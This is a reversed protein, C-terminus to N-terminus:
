NAAVKVYLNFLLVTLVGVAAIRYFLGRNVKQEAHPVFRAVLPLYVAVIGLLLYTDIRLNRTSTFMGVISGVVIAILYPRMRRLEPEAINDLHPKLKYPLWAALFFVGAFLSGGIIGMEVYAQVFSNHALLGSEEGFEGVGIGYIPSSKFDVLADRWLDVREKGTGSTADIDTSRGAFGILLVPLLVAAAIIRKRVSLRTMVLAGIGAVMGVFGGRSYTLHMAYGLISLPIAWLYRWLGFKKDDFCYICLMVGVLIVRALDNPNNFMGISTLRTMFIQQGTVPDNYDQGEVYPAAGVHAYGYYQLLGLSCLIVIFVTMCILFQRFRRTSDIAAVLLLYYSIIQVFGVAVVKADSTLGNAVDSFVAALYLGLVCVTIPRRMLLPWYLQALTPVGLLVACIALTIFYFPVASLEPAIDGPRLLLVGTLVVFSWFGMSSPAAGPELAFEHPRLPVGPAFRPRMPLQMPSTIAENSM